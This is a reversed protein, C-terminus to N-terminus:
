TLSLKGIKAFSSHKGAFDILITSVYDSIELVPSTRAGGSEDTAGRRKSGGGVYRESRRERGETSSM